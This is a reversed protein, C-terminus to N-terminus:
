FAEEFKMGYKDVPLNEWVAKLIKNYIRFNEKVCVSLCINSDKRMQIVRPVFLTDVTDVPEVYWMM